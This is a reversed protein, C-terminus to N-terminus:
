RFKVYAGIALILIVVVVLGIVLWNGTDTNKPTINTTNNTKNTSNVTKNMAAGNVEEIPNATNSDSKKVGSAQASSTQYTSPQSNSSQSGDSQQQNERSNDASESMSEYSDGGLSASSSGSEWAQSVDETTIEEPAHGGTHGPHAFVVTSASMFLIIILILCIEKRKM